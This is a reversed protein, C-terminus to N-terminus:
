LSNDYDQRIFEEAMMRNITFLEDVDGDHFYEADKEYTDTFYKSPIYGGMMNLALAKQDQEVKEIFHSYKTEIEMNSAEVFDNNLIQGINKESMGYKRLMLDLENGIDEHSICGIDYIKTFSYMGHKLLDGYYKKYFQKKHCYIFFMADEDKTVEAGLSKITGYRCERETELDKEDAIRTNGSIDRVEYHFNVTILGFNQLSAIVRNYAELFRRYNRDKFMDIDYQTINLDSCGELFRKEAWANNFKDNYFHLEYWIQSKTMHIIGSNKNYLMQLLLFSINKKYQKRIKSAAKATLSKDYIQTIRLSQSNPIKEWDCFQKWREIHYLRANGREGKSMPDELIDGLAQLNKIIMGAKINKVTIMDEKELISCSIFPIRQIPM